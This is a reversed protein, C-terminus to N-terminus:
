LELLASCMNMCLNNNGRDSGQQILASEEDDDEEEHDGSSEFGNQIRVAPTPATVSRKPPPTLSSNPAKMEKDSGMEKLSGASGGLSGSDYAKLSSPSDDGSSHKETSSYSKGRRLGRFSWQRKKPDSSSYSDTQKLSGLSSHPHEGEGTVTLQPVDEGKLGHGVNFSSRPHSSTCLPQALVVSDLDSLSKTAMVGEEDDEEEDDMEEEDLIHAPYDVDDSESSQLRFIGNTKPSTFTNTRRKRHWKRYRDASAVRNRTSLCKVFSDVMEATLAQNTFPMSGCYTIPFLTDTSPDISYRRSSLGKGVMFRSKKSQRILTVLKEGPLVIPENKSGM